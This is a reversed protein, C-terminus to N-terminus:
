YESRRQRQSRTAIVVLCRRKRSLWPWRDTIRRAGAGVGVGVGVGGAGGTSSRGMSVIVPVMALKLRLPSPPRSALKRISSRVMALTLLLVGTTASPRVPSVFKRRSRRPMVTSPRRVLPNRSAVRTVIM